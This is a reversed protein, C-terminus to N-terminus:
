KVAKNNAKMARVRDLNKQAFERVQQSKIDMSLAKVFFAESEDLRNEQMCLIGMDIIPMINDPKLELSKKYQTEAEAFMGNKRYIEGLMGHALPSHPSTRVADQWFSTNDRFNGSHIFALIAFIATLTSPWFRGPPAAMDFHRSFDTELFLIIFGALPLLLRQEMLPSATSMKSIMLGPAVFVLSFVAGFVMQGPRKNKSSFILWATLLLALIGFIYTTDERMPFVSLNFPFVIKGFYQVIAGANDFASSVMSSITVKYAKEIAQSRLALWLGLAMAWGLGIISFNRWPRKGRNLLLYAACVPLLGAGSEKTFLAGAFLAIHWFADQWKLSEWFRIFKIMSGFVFIALLTDNRGPIWAATQALVPHAAFILGCSFSLGRSYGMVILLRFFFCASLILFLINFFHYAAPGTAGTLVNLMFSVDLLPRYYESEHAIFASTKFIEFLNGTNSYFAHNSIVFVDDDFYTLGFGLTQAYLILCVLAIWLYPRWSRLFEAEKQKKEPHIDAM